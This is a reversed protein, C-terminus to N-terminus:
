VHISLPLYSEQCCARGSALHWLLTGQVHWASPSQSAYDAMSHWLSLGDGSFAHLIRYHWQFFMCSLRYQVSALRILPNPLFFDPPIFPNSASIGLVLVPTLEGQENEIETSMEFYSVSPLRLSVGGRPDRGPAHMVKQNLASKVPCPEEHM